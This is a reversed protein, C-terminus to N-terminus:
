KGARQRIFAVRQRLFPAPHTGSSTTRLRARASLEWPSFSSNCSPPERVDKEPNNTQPDFSTITCIVNQVNYILPYLM